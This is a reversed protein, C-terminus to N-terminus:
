KDEQSDFESISKKWAQNLGSYADSFGQKIHEWADASSNKLSEHWQAVQSRKKKLTKLSSRAKDRANKDMKDWNKEISSELADIRKDMKDLAEQSEQIAQDRQDVSYSKLARLLDKTEKKVKDM